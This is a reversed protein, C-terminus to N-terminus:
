LEAMVSGLRERLLRLHAVQNDARWLIGRLEGPGTPGAETPASATALVGGLLREALHNVMHFLEALEVDGQTLARDTLDLFGAGVVGGGEANVISRPPPCPSGKTLQSMGGIMEFDEM